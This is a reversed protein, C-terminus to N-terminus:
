TSKIVPGNQIDHQPNGVLSLIIYVYKLNPLSPSTIPLRQQVQMVFISARHIGVKDHRKDLLHHFM